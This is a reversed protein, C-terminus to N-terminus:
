DDIISSQYKIMINISWQADDNIVMTFWQDDILEGQDNTTWWDDLFSNKRDNIM